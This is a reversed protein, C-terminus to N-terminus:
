LYNANVPDCDSFSHCIMYEGRAPWPGLREAQYLNWDERGPKHFQEPAVWKEMVWIEGLNRYLPTWRAGNTGDPWEGSCLYRRSPAFVIRYLPESHPNLGYKGMPMPFCRLDAVPDYELM